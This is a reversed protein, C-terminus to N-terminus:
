SSGTRLHSVFRNLYVYPLLFRLLFIRGILFLYRVFPNLYQYGM